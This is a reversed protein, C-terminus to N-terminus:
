SIWEDMHLEHHFNLRSNREVECDIIIHRIDVPHGIFCIGSLYYILVKIVRTTILMKQGCKCSIHLMVPLVHVGIKM